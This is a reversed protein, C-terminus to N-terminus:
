SCPRPCSARAGTSSGCRRASSPASCTTSDGGDVAPPFGRLPRWDEPLQYFPSDGYSGGLRFSGYQLDDGLSAGGSAWLALVHHSAGPLEVYERLQGTIQLQNFPV